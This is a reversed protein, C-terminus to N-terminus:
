ELNYADPNNEFKVQLELPVQSLFHEKGPKQAHKWIVFYLQEETFFVNEWRRGQIREVAWKGPEETERDVTYKIPGDSWQMRRFDM